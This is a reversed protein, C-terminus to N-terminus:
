QKKNEVINHVEIVDNFVLKNNEKSQNKALELTNVEVKLIPEYQEREGGTLGQSIFMAFNNRTVEIFVPFRRYSQGVDESKHKQKKSDVYEAALGNIFDNFPEVSTIINLTNILTTEGNKIHVSVKDPHVAFIKWITGRDFSNLLEKSRFDDWIIVPQGDYNDFAVRGDGVVFFIEEDTKDPFMARAM